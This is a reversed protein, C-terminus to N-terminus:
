ECSSVFLDGPVGLHLLERHLNPAMAALAQPRPNVERRHTVREAYREADGFQLTALSALFRHQHRELAIAEPDNNIGRRATPPAADRVRDALIQAPMPQSEPDSVLESVGEEVQPPWAIRGLPLQEVRILLLVETVM